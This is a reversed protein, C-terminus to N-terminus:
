NGAIEQALNIMDMGDYNGSSMLLLNTNEYSQKRLWKELDAKENIVILEAMDFERAVTEPSLPPLKKLELAHKSFYVMAEDAENM